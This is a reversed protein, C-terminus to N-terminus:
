RLDFHHRYAVNKGIGDLADFAPLREAREKLKLSHPSVSCAVELLCLKRSTREPLLSRHDNMRDREEERREISLITGESPISTPEIGAPLVRTLPYRYM